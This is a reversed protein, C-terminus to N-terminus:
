EFRATRAARIADEVEPSEVPGGGWLYLRYESANPGGSLYKSCFSADTEGSEYLLTYEVMDPSGALLLVAGLGNAHFHRAKAFADGHPKVEAFIGGTFKPM